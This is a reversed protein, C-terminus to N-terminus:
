AIINATLVPAAGRCPLDFHLFAAKNEFGGELRLAILRLGNLRQRAAHLLAHGALHQQADGSRALGIGHGGDDLAHLPGRQDDRM